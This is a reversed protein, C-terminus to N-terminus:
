SCTAVVAPLIPQMLVVSPKMSRLNFNNEKKRFNGNKMIFRTPWVLALPLLYRAREREMLEGAWEVALGAAECAEVRDPADALYRPTRGCGNGEKVM